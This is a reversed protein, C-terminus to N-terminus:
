ELDCNKKRNHQGKNLVELTVKSNGTNHKVPSTLNPYNNNALVQFLRRANNTEGLLQHGVASFMILTLFTFYGERYSNAIADLITSTLQQIYYRCSTIDHLHYHCLFSLFHGFAQSNYKISHNTVDLQLEQPIILSRERFYIKEDTYKQLSYNIVRLSSFYNKNGYFFSALTLWGSVADSHLGILLHSLDYKYKFYQQKNESSYCHKSADPAFRCAKSFHIALLGRSLGSSSHHLFHYLLRINETGPVFHLDELFIRFNGSPLSEHINYSQTQYDQLTKSSVFCNIGQEYVNELITTLKEKNKVNFMLDLDSSKFNLGEGKSGSVILSKTEGFITSTLRRIKVVEESGIKQCLYKYFHLSKCKDTSM